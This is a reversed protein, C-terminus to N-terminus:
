ATAPSTQSDRRDILSAAAPLGEAGTRAEQDISPLDRASRPMARTFLDMDILQLTRLHNANEPTVAGTLSELAFSRATGALLLDVLPDLELSLDTALSLVLQVNRQNMMLLANNILKGTQGAGADGLHVIHKSFSSFVPRVSDLATPSGGVITTLDRRAAAPRGGSVPADLSEIGLASAFEALSRAFQPLGTGHNVLISGPRMGTLLGGEHAVFEIDTDERLCLGVVDSAAALSAPTEHSTFTLNDLAELSPARRAWVHLDFGAEAIARAMPAGQDGLGIWGVVPKTTEASM